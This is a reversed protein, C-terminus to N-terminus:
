RSKKLKERFLDGLTGFSNETQAQGYDATIKREAKRKLAKRSLTIKKGDKDVDIVLAKFADGPKFMKSHDAERPTGMESNPALGVRGSPLKVFIGFKAVNEVTGEVEEDIQPLDGVAEIAKKELSLSIKRNELDISLIEAEVEQGQSLVERPHNIRRGAGLASIHVLGDVGPTLEVFAGFPALRVVTGKVTQGQSFTAAALSWPDEQLAKLSLSIRNKDWDIDIVKASVRDGIRCVESPNNVKQWSIQSVPILADIGGIDVFVGFDQISGVVGEVVAGVSLRGQLEERAKKRAAELEARRSVIINRGKEKIELVKFDYTKGTHEEPDKSWRLDIQSQPCFARVEGVRVEFGGKVAKTVRGQVPIGKEAATELAALSAAKKGLRTTLTVEGGESSLVYAEIFEGASPPSVTEPAKGDAGPEGGSEPVFETARIAGEQKGGLNVFIWEDSTRVVQVKLKDGKRWSIIQRKSESEAFLDAFSEADGTETEPEPVAAAAQLDEGSSAVSEQNNNDATSDSM